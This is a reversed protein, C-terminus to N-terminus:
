RASMRLGVWGGAAGMALVFLIAVNFNRQQDAESEYLQTSTAQLLFSLLLLAGVALLIGCVGGVVVALTRRMKLVSLVSNAQIKSLGVLTRSSRYQISYADLLWTRDLFEWGM